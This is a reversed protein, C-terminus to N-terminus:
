RPVGVVPEEGDDLGQEIWSGSAASSYQARSFRSASRWEWSRSITMRAYRSFGRVVTPQFPRMLSGSMSSLKWILLPRRTDRESKQASVADPMGM